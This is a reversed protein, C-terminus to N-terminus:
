APIINKLESKSWIDMVTYPDDLRDLQKEIDWQKPGWEPDAAFATWYDTLALSMDKDSMSKITEPTWQYQKILAYDLAERPTCPKFQQHWNHTLRLWEGLWLLRYSM